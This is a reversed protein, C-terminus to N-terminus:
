GSILGLSTVLMCLCMWFTENVTLLIIARMLPNYWWRVGRIDWPQGFISLPDFARQMPAKGSIVSSIM